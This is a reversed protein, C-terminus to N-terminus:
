LNYCTKRKEVVLSLFFRFLAGPCLAGARQYLVHEIEKESSDRRKSSMRLNKPILIIIAANEM